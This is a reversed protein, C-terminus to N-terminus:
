RARGREEQEWPSVSWDWGAQTLGYRIQRMEDATPPLVRSGAGVKFGVWGSVGFSMAGYVAAWPLCTPGMDVPGGQANVVVVRGVFCEGEAVQGVAVLAGPIAKLRLREAADEAIRRGRELTSSV